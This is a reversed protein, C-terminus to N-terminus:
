RGDQPIKFSFMSIFPGNKCLSHKRPDLTVHRANVEGVPKEEGTFIHRIVEYVQHSLDKYFFSFPEEFEMESINRNLSTVQGAGDIGFLDPFVHSPNRNVSAGFSVVFLISIHALFTHFRPFLIFIMSKSFWKKVFSYM